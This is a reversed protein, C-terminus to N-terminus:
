FPYRSLRFGEIRGKRGLRKRANIIEEIGAQSVMVYEITRNMESTPVSCTQEANFKRNLRAVQAGNPASCRCEEAFRNVANSLIEVLSILTASDVILCYLCNSSRSVVHGMRPWARVLLLLM